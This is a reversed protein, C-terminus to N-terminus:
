PRAPSEPAAPPAPVLEFKEIWQWGLAGPRLTLDVRDADKFRDYTKRSVLLSVDDKPDAPHVWCSVRLYAKDVKGHYTKKSRVTVRASTAGGRDLLSNAAFLAEPAITLMPYAGMLVVVLLNRFSRSHGRVYAWFLPIFILWAVMAGGAVRNQTAILAPSGYDVLGTPLVYRAFIGAIFALVAVAAALDGRARGPTRLDDPFFEPLAAKLPALLELAIKVAAADVPVVRRGVRTLGLSIGAPGLTVSRYGADLLALLLTRVQAVGLLKQLTRDLEDSELYVKPDFSPDGAQLERNIRLRKGFRDIGTERRVVLRPLAPGRLVLTVVEQNGAARSTVEAKVGGQEVEFAWVKAKEGPLDIPRPAGGGLKSSLAALRRPRGTRALWRGLPVAIGFTLVLSGLMMVLMVPYDMPAFRVV